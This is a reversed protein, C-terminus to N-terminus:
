ISTLIHIFALDDRSVQDDAVIFRVLHDLFVESSFPPVDRNSTNCADHTTLGSQTSLPFAWKNKLVTEDYEVPHVKRLHRRLNTNGTSRSYM